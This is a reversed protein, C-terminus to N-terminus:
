GAPDVPPLPEASPGESAVRHERVLALFSQLLPSRDTARYICSLDVVAEPADALPRYVVGPMSVTTASRPILSLGFGSAVLAIATITDGVEQAVRPEFGRRRCLELVRDILSPRGLNPYVVLPHEALAGFPVAAVAALPHRVNVAVMLPETALLECGIDPLAPMMRNFGVSIRRQRLAEIQEAKSMTHLVVNVGPLRERYAHLLKPIADYIGSGFIAVDLRGIKGDGARQVRDVAAEVLMRISQAEERFMEGAQTLEVGRPTRIFLAVGLEEELAKIQRTLPPQSMHLRLAARGINLEEAVALFYKLHRLDM